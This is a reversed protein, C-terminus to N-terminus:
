KAEIGDRVQRFRQYADKWAETRSIGVMQLFGGGGFRLWQVVTLPTAGTADRAEAIIQHAQQNALRLPESTTIHVEKLNSVTAFAERAFTDREGPQAPGGPAITVYMHPELGAAVPSKSAQEVTADSLMLARGPLVGAVKFNALESVQFPLLSLQEEVPVTTRVALSALAARVGADSYRARAADPVQVTVLATLEPASAVLIWKRVKQKEATLRGVVLFAKGSPLTLAERKELAVNQRKLADASVTKELEAYAEPPFSVMIIAVNNDADEFGFFSKSTVMGEPPILGIRSGPPYTPEAACVTVPAAFLAAMLLLWRITTM